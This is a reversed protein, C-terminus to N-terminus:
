SSLYKGEPDALGPFFTHKFLLCLLAKDGEGGVVEKMARERRRGRGTKRRGRIGGELERRTGGM